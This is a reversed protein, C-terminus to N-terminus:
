LGIAELGRRVVNKREGEYDPVEVLVEQPATAGGDDQPQYDGEIRALRDDTFFLSMRTIKTPQSGVGQTHVYDWRDEHFRDQVAPTGMVFQVQRRTMGLQLRDIRAQDLVNGQVVTPRYTLSWGEITRSIADSGDSLSGCGSLLATSLALSSTLLKHM